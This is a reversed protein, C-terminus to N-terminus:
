VPVEERLFVYEGKESFLLVMPLGAPIGCPLVPPAVLMGCKLIGLIFVVKEGLAGVLETGM